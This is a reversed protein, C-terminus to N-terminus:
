SIPRINPKSGDGNLFSCDFNESIEDIKERSKEIIIVQHGRAILLEATRLTVEGAGVFAIRMILTEKGDM